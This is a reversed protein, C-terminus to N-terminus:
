IVSTVPMDIAWALGGKAYDLTVDGRLSSAVMDSIVVHGFGNRVPPTVPPGNTERWSMRFRREGNDSGGLDWAIAV